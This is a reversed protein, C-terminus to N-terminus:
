LDQNIIAPHQGPYYTRLCSGSLRGNWAGVPSGATTTHRESLRGAKMGNATSTHRAPKASRMSPISRFGIISADSIMTGLSLPTPSSQTVLNKSLYLGKVTNDDNIQVIDGVVEIPFFNNNALDATNILADPKTALSSLDVTNQYYATLNALSVTLLTPQPAAVKEFQQVVNLLNAPIPPIPQM